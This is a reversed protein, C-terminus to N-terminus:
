RRDRPWRRLVKSVDEKKASPGTLAFGSAAASTWLVKGTNVEILRVELRFGMSYEKGEGLLIAQAGARRADELLEPLRGLPHFYAGDDLRVALEYPDVLEQRLGRKKFEALFLSTWFTDVRSGTSTFPYVAIRRVDAFSLPVPESPLTRSVDAGASGAAIGAPPPAAAPAPESAESGPPKVDIGETGPTWAPAGGSSALESAHALMGAVYSSPTATVTGSGPDLSTVVAVLAGREDFVPSGILADGALQGVSFIRYGDGRARGALQARALSSAPEHMSWAPVRPSVATWVPEDGALLTSDGVTAARLGFGAIKLLDLGRREDRDLVVVDDYVDGDALAASATGADRLTATATVVHGNASVLVGVGRPEGDAGFLVVLADAAAAPATLKAGTAGAAARTGTAASPASPGAGVGILLALFVLTRSPLGAVPRTKM